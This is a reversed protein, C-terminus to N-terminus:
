QALLGSNIDRALFENCRAQVHRFDGQGVWAVPTFLYRFHAEFSTSPDWLIPAATDSHRRRFIPDNREIGRAFVEAHFTEVDSPNCRCAGVRKLVGHCQCALVRSRSQAHTKDLMVFVIAVIIDSPGCFNMWRPRHAATLRFSREVSIKRLWSRSPSSWRTSLGARSPQPWRVLKTSPLTPCYSTVCRPGRSNSPVRLLSTALGFCAEHLCTIM